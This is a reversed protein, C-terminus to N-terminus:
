PTGTPAPFVFAGLIDDRAIDNFLVEKEAVGAKHVEGHRVIPGFVSESASDVFIFISSQESDAHVLEAVLEPVDFEVLPISGITTNSIAGMAITFVNGQGYDKVYAVGPNTGNEDGSDSMLYARIQFQGGSDQGGNGVWLGRDIVAQMPPAANLEAPTSFLEALATAPVPEFTGDSDPDAFGKAVINDCDLNTDFWINWDEDCWYGYSDATSTIEGLYALAGTTFTDTAQFAAEFNRGLFKQIPFGQIPISALELESTEYDQDVGGSTIQVTAVEGGTGYGTIRFLDDASVLGSATVFREANVSESSVDIWDGSAGSDPDFVFIQELSGSLTGYEFEAVEMQTSEDWYGDSEIWTVGSTDVSSETIPTPQAGTYSGTQSCTDSADSTEQSDTFTGSSIMGSNYTGSLQFSSAANNETDTVTFNGSADVTGINMMGGEDDGFEFIVQNGIQRVIALEFGETEEVPICSDTMGDYDENAPNTGDVNWQLLYAGSMDPIGTGDCTSDSTYPCADSNDGTGDGDADFQETADDPFADEADPIGDSDADAVVVDPEDCADGMGDGDTDTQDNSMNPCNDVDNDFGDGDLDADCADGMGDGDLDDQNNWVSPCNDVSDEFGDGDQDAIQCADGIGNGDSDAQDDQAVGNAVTPCNDVDDSVGDSDTDPKTYAFGAILENLAPVNLGQFADMEGALRMSGVRLFTQTDGAAVAALIVKPADRWEIQYDRYLIEPIDFSLVAEAGGFPNTITWTAEVDVGGDQINAITGDQAHLSFSVTGSTSAAGSTDPGTLFANINGDNNDRGIWLGKDLLSSSSGEPHLADAISTALDTQSFTPWNSWDPLYGNVCALGLDMLNQDPIDCEFAYADTVNELEIAIASADANAFTGSPNASVDVFEEGAIGEFALGQVNTAYTSIRFTSFNFAGDTRVLDATAGPTGSLQVRDDVEVWGSAGLMFLTDPTTEPVWAPGNEDWKSVAEGNEDIIVTEFEYVEVDTEEVHNRDTEIFAFGMHTGSASLVDGADVQPMRALSTTFTYTCRALEDGSQGSGDYFTNIETSANDTVLSPASTSDVTGSAEWSESVSFEFGAAGFEDFNEASMWTFLGASDITGMDGDSEFGNDAFQIELNVGDQEILVVSSESDGNAGECFSADGTSAINTVTREALWFGSMDAVDGCADGVGDVDSDAQDSNPITPCNDAADDVTDEDTDALLPDTGNAEEEADPVTDGDDDEDANNGIGDGDTDTDESDDLPFADTADPTGDNDDDTDVDDTMGDGDTDGVYSFNGKVEEIAPSNLGSEYFNRGAARYHGGRVYLQSDSSDELMAVIMADPKDGGDFQESVLEPLTFQILLDTDNNNPDVITWTSSVGLNVLGGTEWDALYFSAAGTSAEAGSTDTGTLYALVQGEEMYGAPVGQWQDTMTSGPAFVIEGLGQAYTVGGAGDSKLMANQCDLASTSPMDEPCRIEYVDLQSVAHIGLALVSSGAFVEDPATLGEDSWQTPVLGMMPESSVNASFPTVLWNALINNSADKAVLNLTAGPTGEVMKQDDVSVWGTAGLMFSSEVDTNLVWKDTTSASYDYVFETEDTDDIIGYSFEFNPATMATTSTASSSGDASDDSRDDEHADMWVFGVNTGSQGDFIDSAQEQAMPTFIETSSYVCSAVQAGSSDTFIFEEDVGATIVGTSSDVQGDVTITLDMSGMDDGYGETLTGTINGATDISVESGSENLGEDGFSVKIAAGDQLWLSVRTMEDGMDFPCVGGEVGSNDTETESDVMRENLYFLALEPLDDCVDGVGDGDIDAQDENATVPCNDSNDGFGDEDADESETDDMPFADDSDLVGDNDDDLDCVNGFGDNDTDLQDSNATAPCNDTGDNAGDEDSDVADPNTGLATEESNSLGDGDRDDDCVDGQQDNDLDEQQDNVMLPCNDSADEILDNDDDTDCANGGDESQDTNTQAPNALVPCNDATDGIGDGDDDGDCVDGQGDQDLDDQETNANVPCNDANDGVTDQDQDQSEEANLPFADFDDAVGDGDDDPDCVNGLGDSDTDLQDENDNVPCNDTADPISDQDKNDDANDGIGDGDTDQTEAPDLPFVDISDNVGDGDTDANTPNTGETAEQTDSIGDNDDDTDCANGEADGDTNMQDQNTILPCNDLEDVIGDGDADADCADGIGNNNDDTQLANATVPCNDVTNDVDDGDVDPDCADGISDGDADEQNNPTIPCNDSGDDTGDGDDDTDCADGEGDGNLDSQNSNAVVPCNDAGDRRGDSDTDRLLPNSGITGEEADSLGDNDDDGDANNGVGDGDTDSDENANLPFADQVDATGDGDDDTDANNGTGDNDSDVFESDDTPFADDSNAVGDGDIDGDSNDGTGDSDTDTDENPNLPFADSTDATGDGDDDTDTTNPIGDNDTDTSADALLPFADATDDTGDGDDDTDANNGVGDGDTDTDESSDNPFADQDNAVGDGDRDSDANDGTGDGDTDTTETEDTPFADDDDSVGDGDDDDDANNGTGDGDTDTQESEDFPFADTDNPTNDGDADNDCADGRDDGDINSQAPNYHVPCNDAMNDVGDADSDFQVDPDTPGQDVNDLVGDGDTDRNLPDSGNQEEQADSVGDGDDDDDENNGVGDRDTDITEFPNRPFLDDNNAVGDGDIDNDSNDGTGDGDTDTTETPDTDFADDDNLVGDGDIDADTTDGEGDGDSDVFTTGPNTADNDDADQESPWGDNDQDTANQRTSDLPFDDATDATGDGDDDTDANNGVGDTDTDLQESADLPFADDADQVGDNDDDADANNGTGDGDTDTTESGDEPFADQDNAVGDGDIDPNTEAPKLEVTETPDIETTVDENGLDQKEDDVIEKMDGVTRGQPDNPIPLTAPDQELLELAAGATESEGDYIESTQGDVEGDIEGDALDATLASLVANPDDTGTASDIQDVVATVAEVAARYAAADEQEETTDTTDDILPPTDFIDIDQAIGFGMTSKVQAAAIPLATLFEDTTTTTDALSVTFDDNGDGDPDLDRDDWPPMNSDANAIALDVAMTTLPTAYIQEGSDLLAQTIVTRMESIVPAEGTLIDTTTADSTFELIYPPTVPFPLALGTIQAQTNTSGPNGAPDGKFDAASTDVDYATVIANVLPGKIGGGSISQSTPASSGGGGGGGCATLTFTVCLLMLKSLALLPLPKDTDCRSM